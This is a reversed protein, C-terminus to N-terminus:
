QLSGSNPRVVVRGKVSFDQIIAEQINTATAPLSHHRLTQQKKPQVITHTFFNFKVAVCDM